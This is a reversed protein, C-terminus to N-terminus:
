VFNDVTLKDSTKTKKAIPKNTTAKRRKAKQKPAAPTVKKPQAEPTTPGTETTNVFTILPELLLKVNKDVSHLAM